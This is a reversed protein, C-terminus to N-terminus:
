ENIAFIQRYVWFQWLWPSSKSLNHKIPFPFRLFPVIICCHFSHLTICIGFNPGFTIRAIISHPWRNVTHLCGNRRVNVVIPLKSAEILWVYLNGIQNNVLGPHLGAEWGFWSPYAAFLSQSVTYKQKSCLHLLFIVLICISSDIFIIYKKFLRCKLVFLVSFNIISRTMNISEEWRLMDVCVHILTMLINGTSGTELYLRSHWHLLRWIRRKEPLHIKTIADNKKYVSWTNYLHWHEAWDRTM